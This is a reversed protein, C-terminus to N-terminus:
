TSEDVFSSDPARIFDEEVVSASLGTRPQFASVM